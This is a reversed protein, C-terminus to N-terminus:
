VDGGTAHGPTPPAICHYTCRTNTCSQIREQNEFEQSAQLLLKNITEDREGDERSIEYSCRHHAQILLEDIKTDLGDPIVEDDALPGESNSIDDIM